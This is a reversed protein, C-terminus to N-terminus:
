AHCVATLMGLLLCSCGAPTHAGPLRRAIDSWKNGLQRHAAVLQEEEAETWADKRIGPCLHHNWRQLVLALCPLVLCPPPLHPLPAAPPPLLPCHLGLRVSQQLEVAAILSSIGREM